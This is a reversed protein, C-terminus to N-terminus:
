EDTGLGTRTWGEVTIGLLNLRYSSSIQSATRASILQNCANTYVLLILYFALKTTAQLPDVKDSRGASRLSCQRELYLRQLHRRFTSLNRLWVCVSRLHSKIRFSKASASLTLCWGATASGVCFIGHVAGAFRSQNILIQKDDTKLRGYPM